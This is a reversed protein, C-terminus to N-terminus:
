GLHEMIRDVIEDVSLDTTDIVLADAATRLPDATRNSDLADRRALDTAVTEYSLDAVEKSRRSARVEPSADLYVKLRADPFVVTGIDRGEMVGGGHRAAWQRQRSRMEERVAPNAAVISVARTVEPGRIEITADIGDVVVTGDPDISLEMNRALNAVVEADDPAVNGHLAAFAVSRYMAGTDLYGLGCRRAVARAVTSKGSGAPGDIAIVRVHAAKPRLSEMAEFYTPFTKAVCGPDEIVVGPVRLGILTMSMAMRHDDWTHVQAGHVGGPVIRIGDPEETADVGVATLETVLAGIRDTEKARIFGIGTMRTPSEAFVSVAALTQATDSIDSMDVEIGSLPGGSVTTSTETRTVRAGMRALVDVFALDGQVSGAGLGDVTVEGGTIAAAAFFYSAASADPEIDVDTGRYRGPQVVWTRDDVEDVVAGFRRMVSVTMDLYPRSVLDGDVILRLGHPLCVAAILLGSAFQSSGEGPVHVEPMTGVTRRGAHVAFPLSGPDGLEDVEGGLSRLADITPGMPRRRMAPDADLTVPEPALLLAAAVFRATTGSQNAHLTPRGPAVVGATGDVTIMTADRDVKAGLGIACGIMAETDDAILAGTLVSRGEALAAVLLVRNTLSKSGPPRIRGRAPGEFPEIELRAPLPRDM